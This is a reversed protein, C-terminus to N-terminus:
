CRLLNNSQYEQLNVSLCRFFFQFNFEYHSIIDIHLVIFYFACYVCIYLVTFSQKEYPYGLINPFFIVYDEQTEQIYRHNQSYEEAIKQCLQTNM